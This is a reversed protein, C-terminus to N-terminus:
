NFYNSIYKKVIASDGPSCSRRIRPMGGTTDIGTRLWSGKGFRGIKMRAIARYQGAGGAAFSFYKSSDARSILSSDALGMRNNKALCALEASEFTMLTTMGDWMHDKIVTNVFKPIAIALMVGAICLIVVLEVRTIGRQSTM